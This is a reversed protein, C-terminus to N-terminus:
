AGGWRTFEVDERTEILDQTDDVHAGERWGCLYEVQNTPREYQGPRCPKGDLADLRGLEYADILDLNDMREDMMAVIMQEFYQSNM